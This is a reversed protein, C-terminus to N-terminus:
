NVVLFTASRGCPTGAGDLYPTVRWRGYLSNTTIATGALPMTASVLATGGTRTARHTAVLEQYLHGKPTFIRFTVRHPEEAERLRLQFQLDLVRRASFRDTPRARDPTKVALAACGGSTRPGQDAAGLGMAAMLLGGVTAMM